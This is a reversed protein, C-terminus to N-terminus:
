TMALPKLEIGRGYVLQVNRGDIGFSIIAM